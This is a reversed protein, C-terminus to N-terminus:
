LVYNKSKQQVNNTIATIDVIIMFDAQPNGIGITYEPKLDVGIDPTPIINNQDIHIVSQVSDVMAGIHLTQNDKILEFIIIDTETPAIRSEKDLFLRLDILSIVSGRLNILGRLYPPLGPVQTIPPCHITERVYRVEAAFLTDAIYFTIFQNQLDLEESESIDHISLIDGASCAAM